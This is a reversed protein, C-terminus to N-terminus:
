AGLRDWAAKEEVELRESDNLLMNILGDEQFSGM